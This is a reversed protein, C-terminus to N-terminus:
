RKVELTPSTPDRGQSELGGAEVRLDVQVQMPRSSDSSATYAAGAQVILALVLPGTVPAGTLRPRAPECTRYHSSCCCGRSREPQTSLKGAM